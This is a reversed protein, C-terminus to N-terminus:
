YFSYIDRKIDELGKNDKLGVEFSRVPLLKEEQIKLFHRDSSNLKDCKTFIFSYPMKIADLYNAFQDDAPLLLRRSDILLYVKRLSRNDELFDKMMGSFSKREFTAFGYGPVDALYFCDDILSYNIMKTLGPTKSSKMFDKHGVLSNILTSKGVNSRGLFTITPRDFLFNEKAPASKVFVAKAFLFKPM